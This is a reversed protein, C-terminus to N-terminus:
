FNPTDSILYTGRYNRCHDSIVFRGKYYECQLFVHKKGYSLRSDLYESYLFTYLYLKGSKVSDYEDKNSQFFCSTRMPAKPELKAPFGSIDIKDMKAYAKKIGEKEEADTLQKSSLWNYCGKNFGFAALEGTNTFDINEAFLYEPSIVINGHAIALMASKDRSSCLYPPLFFSCAIFACAVAVESISDRDILTPHRLKSLENWYIWATLGGGLFSLGGGILLTWYDHDRGWLMLGLGGLSISFLGFVVPPRLRAM